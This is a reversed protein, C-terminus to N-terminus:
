AVIQQSCTGTSLCCAVPEVANHPTPCASDVRLFATGGGWPSQNAVITLNHKGPLLIVTGQSFTDPEEICLNPNTVPVCGGQVIAAPSKIVSPPTDVNTMLIPQGNDYVSFFNGPCFCATVTLLVVNQNYVGFSRYAPQNAKGYAFSYWGADSKVMMNIPANVSIRNMAKQILGDTQARKFKVAEVSIFASILLLLLNM